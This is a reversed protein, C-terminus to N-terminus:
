RDQGRDVQVFQVLEDLRDQNRLVGSPSAPRTIRGVEVQLVLQGLGPSTTVAWQRPCQPPPHDAQGAGVRVVRSVPSQPIASVCVVMQEPEGAGLSFGFLDLLAQGLEQAVVEFQFEGLVLRQDGM